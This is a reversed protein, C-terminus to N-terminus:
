QDKEHLPINIFGVSSEYLALLIEPPTELSIDTPMEPKARKKNRFDVGYIIDAM